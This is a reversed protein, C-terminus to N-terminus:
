MKGFEKHHKNRLRMVSAVADLMSDYYKTYRVGNVMIRARWRQAAKNWDLGKVGTTNLSNRKSNSSNESCTAIRLNEKSNDRPNGNKHDIVNSIDLDCKNHLMFVLKTIPYSAGDFIVLGYGRDGYSGAIKGCHKMNFLEWKNETSFHSEPRYKWFLENEHFYLIESLYQFSPLCKARPSPMENDKFGLKLV